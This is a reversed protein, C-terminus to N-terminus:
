QAMNPPTFGDRAQRAKEDQVWKIAKFGAQRKEKAAPPLMGIYKRYASIGKDAASIEGYSFLANRYVMALTLQAETSKPYTNVLEQALKVARKRDSAKRSVSLYDILYTKVPGDKPDSRLLREGVIKLKTYPYYLTTLLFRLRDYQRSHPNSPTGLASAIPQYTYYRDPGLDIGIYPARLMAYGWKFQAKPNKPAKEAATRLSNIVSANLKKQLELKKIEQKAQLFPRDSGIWPESVWALDIYVQKVRYKEYNLTPRAGAEDCFLATAISCAFSLVAFNLHRM